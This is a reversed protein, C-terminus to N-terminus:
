RLGLTKDLSKRSLFKYAGENLQLKSVFSLQIVHLSIMVDLRPNYYVVKRRSAFTRYKLEGQFYM